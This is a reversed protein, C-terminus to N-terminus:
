QVDSVNFVKFAHAFSSYIAAIVAYGLFFLFYNKATKVAGPKITWLALGARVSLVMLLVSIISDIYIINLLGPFLEAYQSTENYSSFLNYLTRAPAGITLGFCLLLLWGGVDKYKEQQVSNNIDSM